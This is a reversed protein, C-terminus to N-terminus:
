ARSRGSGHPTGAQGVHKKQAQESQKVRSFVMQRSILKTILAVILSCVPNPRWTCRCHKITARCVCRLAMRQTRPLEHPTHLLCRTPRADPHPCRTFVWDSRVLWDGYSPAPPLNHPLDPVPVGSCSSSAYERVSSPVLVGSPVRAKM